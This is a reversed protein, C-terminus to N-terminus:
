NKTFGAPISFAADPITATSFGSSELYQDPEPENMSRLRRLAEQAAVGQQGGSSALAELKAQAQQMQAQQAPSLTPGGEVKRRIIQLVPVGGILAIKRQANGMSEAAAGSAGSLSGWPFGDANRKYFARLEAAGPVDDSVWMEMETRIKTGPQANPAPSLMTMLLQKCRFGGITRTQGTEKVDVMPGSGESQGAPAAPNTFSQTRYTRRTRDITTMSKSAFDFIVVSEGADIEMRQGKIRHTMVVNGTDARRTVQYQFDALAPLAWACLLLLRPQIM